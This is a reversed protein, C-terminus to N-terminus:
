LQELCYSKRFFIEEFKRGNEDIKKEQIFRLIVGLKRDTVDIEFCKKMNKRSNMKMEKQKDFIKNREFLEIRMVCVYLVNRLGKKVFRLSLIHPQVDIQDSNIHM